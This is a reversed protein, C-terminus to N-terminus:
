GVGFDTNHDLIEINKLSYLYKYEQKFWNILNLDKKIDTSNENFINICGLSFNNLLINIDNKIMDKTQGKIGILLCISQFYKSVQNPNDFVIGKKLVNNRFNTDFTELGLKFIVPINYIDHIEKLKERYIWHSEFYIKNINKEKVIEMIKNLTISPLEFISGSNIVELQGTVGTIKALIKLNLDNCISIDNENDTIYDCFSCIGWKCDNGKLLVIERPNKNKIINYRNM